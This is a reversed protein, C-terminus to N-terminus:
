TPPLQHLPPAPAVGAAHGTTSCLATILTAVWAALTTVLYALMPRQREARGATSLLTKGPAATVKGM